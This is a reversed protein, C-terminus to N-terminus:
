ELTSMKELREEIKKRLEEYAKASIIGRRYQREVIELMRLLRERERKIDEPRPGVFAKKIEEIRPKIREEIKRIKIRSYIVFAFVIGLIIILVLVLFEIPIRRAEIVKIKPASYLLKIGKDILNSVVIISALTEDYRKNRLYEKANQLEEEAASIVERVQFVDYGLKEKRETENKLWELKRELVSIEYEILEEKSRFVNLKFPVNLSTENAIVILSVNYSTTQNTLPPMLELSIRISNGAELKEIREPTIDFWTTLIGSLTLELNTISVNGTNNLYFYIYKVDGGEVNVEGPFKWVVLKAKPAIPVIPTPAAPGPAPPSVIVKEVVKFTANKQISPQILSYTVKVVLWYTGVPQNSFIYLSRLLTKNQNVPVYVAESAYYWTQNGDTVWYEVDVDQSVEGMNELYIEFTLTDGQSVEPTLIKIRVDYPGGSSVRFMKVRQTEISGKRAKAIATYAGTSTNVPMAFKYVYYGKAERTMSALDVFFYVNGAPDLVTLNLDDPDVPLGSVNYVVISFKMINDPYWVVTTELDVYLSKLSIQSTGSVNFEYYKVKASSHNVVPDFYYSYTSLNYTGEPADDTISFKPVPYIYGDENTVFNESYTLNGLSDWIELKVSVNSLPEDLYDFVRYFIRGESGKPYSDSYTSLFIKLNTYVYFKEKGYGMIGVNDQSYVTVNYEGRLSTNQSISPYQVYWLSQHKETDEWIKVMNLTDVRGDPRTINVKTWNLGVASRDTINAYIEVREEQLIYKPTVNVEIYPGVYPHIVTKLELSSPKADDEIADFIFTSNYYQLPEGTVNYYIGVTYYDQPGIEFYTINVWTKNGYQPSVNFSINFNGTNNVIVVCMLGEPVTFNAECYTPYMYWTRNSTVTLNLYLYDYGNNTTTVNLIGSYNGPPYGPPIAANIQISQTKGAELS